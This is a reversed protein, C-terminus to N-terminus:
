PRRAAPPWTDFGPVGARAKPNWDFELYGFAFEGIDQASLAESTTTHGAADYAAAQASTQGNAPAAIIAVAVIPGFLFLALAVGAVWLQCCGQAKRIQDDM